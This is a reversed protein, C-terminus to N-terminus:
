YFLREVTLEKEPIEEIHQKIVKVLADIRSKWEKKDLKLQGTPTSQFCSPIKEENKTYKDPNFRLVVMPRNGLDRFIEMLRKNECSYGATSHKNEDCEIVITHTFMEIRVDPRKASCANDVKKNFIMSVEPFHEKLADRMHHEKLM